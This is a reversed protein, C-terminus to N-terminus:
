HTYVDAVSTTFLNAVHAIAEGQGERVIVVYEQERYLLGNYGHSLKWVSRCFFANESVDAVDVNSVDAAKQRDSDGLLLSHQGGVLIGNSLQQQLTNNM